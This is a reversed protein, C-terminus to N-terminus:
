QNANLFDKLVPSPHSCLASWALAQVKLALVMYTGVGHGKLMLGSCFDLYATCTVSQCSISNVVTQNGKSLYENVILSGYIVTLKNYSKVKATTTPGQTQHHHGFCIALAARLALQWPRSRQPWPWLHLPWPWSWLFKTQLCRSALAQGPPSCWQNASALWRAM